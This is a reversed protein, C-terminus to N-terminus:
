SVQVLNHTLIKESSPNHAMTKATVTTYHHLLRLQQVNLTIGPSTNTSLDSLPQNFGNSDTALSPPTFPPLRLPSGTSADRSQTSKYECPTRQKVCNACDPRQEDCKWNTLRSIRRWLHRQLEASLSVKVHRGKCPLCGTRSKKHPKRTKSRDM